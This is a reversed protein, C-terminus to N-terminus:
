DLAKAENIILDQAQAAACPTPMFYQRYMNELNCFQNKGPSLNEPTSKKRSSIQLYGYFAGRM